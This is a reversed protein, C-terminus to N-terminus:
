NNSFERLVLDKAPQLDSNLQRGEMRILVENTAYEVHWNSFEEEGLMRTSNLQGECEGDVFIGVDKWFSGESHGDQVKGFTIVPAMNKTTTM